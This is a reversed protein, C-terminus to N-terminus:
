IGPPGIAGRWTKSLRKNEKSFQDELRNAAASPPRASPDINGGFRSQGTREVMAPFGCRCPMISVRGLRNAPDRSSRSTCSLVEPHDLWGYVTRLSRQHGSFEIDVEPTGPHQHAPSMSATMGRCLPPPAHNPEMEYMLVALRWMARTPPHLLPLCGPLRVGGVEPLGTCTDMLYRRSCRGPRRFRPQDRQRRYGRYTVVAPLGYRPPGVAPLKCCRTLLHTREQFSNAVSLPSDQLSRAVSPRIFRTSVGSSEFAYSSLQLHMPQFNISFSESRAKSIKSEIRAESRGSV